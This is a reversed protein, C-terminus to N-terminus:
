LARSCTEHACVYASISGPLVSRSRRSFQHLAAVPFIRGRSCSGSQHANRIETCFTPRASSTCRRLSWWQHRKHEASRARRSMECAAPDTGPHCRRSRGNGVLPRRVHRQPNCLSRSIRRHPHAILGLLKGKCSTTAGGHCRSSKSCGQASWCSCNPCNSLAM